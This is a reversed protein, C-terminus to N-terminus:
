ETRGIASDISQTAVVGDGGGRANLGLKNCAPQDSAAGTDVGQSQGCAGRQVQTRECAVLGDLRQLFDLDDLHLAGARHQGHRGVVHERQTAAIGAGHAVVVEAAGRLRCTRGAGGAGSAFDLHHHQAVGAVREVQLCQGVVPDAARTEIRAYQAVAVQCAAPAVFAIHGDVADSVLDIVVAGGASLHQGLHIHGDVGERRDLDGADGGVRADARAVVDRGVRQQAVATGHRHQGCALFHAHLNQVGARLGHNVFAIGHEVAGVPGKIAGIHGDRGVCQCSATVRDLGGNHVGAIDCYRGVAVETHVRFRQDNVGTGGGHGHAM